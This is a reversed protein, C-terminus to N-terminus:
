RKGGPVHSAMWGEWCGRCLVSGIIRPEGCDKTECIPSVSEDVGFVQGVYYGRGTPNTETGTTGQNEKAIMGAADVLRWIAHSPDEATGQLITLAQWVLGVAAAKTDTKTKFKSM